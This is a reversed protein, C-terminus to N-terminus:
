RRIARVVVAPYFHFNPLLTPVFGYFDLLECLTDKTYWAHHSNYHNTRRGRLHRLSFAFDAIARDSHINQAADMMDLVGTMDPVSMVLPHENKLITHWHYLANTAQVPSLHEFVQIAVIKDVKQPTYPLTTIDAQLDVVTLRRMPLHYADGDLGAYYDRIDASNAEITVPNVRADLGDIDINRYGRLYVGGCGLHLKVPWNEEGEDYLCSSQSM